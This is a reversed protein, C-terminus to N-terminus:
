AALSASLCYKSIVQGLGGAFLFEQPLGSTSGQIARGLGGVLVNALADLFSLFWVETFKKGAPSKFAFIREQIRGYQIFFFYIGAAGGILKMRDETTIQKADDNSKEAGQPMASARSSVELSGM